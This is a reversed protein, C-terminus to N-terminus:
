LSKGEKECDFDRWADRGTFVLMLVALALGTGVYIALGRWIGTFVQKWLTRADKPWELWYWKM